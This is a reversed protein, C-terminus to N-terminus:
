ASVESLLFGPFFATRRGIAREDLKRLAPNGIACRPAKAIDRRAAIM